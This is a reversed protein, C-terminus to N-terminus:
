HNGANSLSYCPDVVFIYELGEPIVVVDLFRLWIEWRASIMPCTTGM